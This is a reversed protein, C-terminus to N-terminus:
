RWAGVGGGFSDSEDDVDGSDSDFVGSSGSGAFDLFSGSVPQPSVSKGQSAHRTLLSAAFSLARAAAASVSAADPPDAAAHADTELPSPADVWAMEVSRMAADLAAWDARTRARNQKAADLFVNWRKQHVQRLLEGSLQKSAYDALLGNNSEHWLTLVMKDDRSLGTPTRFAPHTGLLDDVRDFLDRMDKEVELWSSAAQAAATASTERRARAVNEGVVVAAADSLTQRAFDVVDYLLASTPPPASARGSARTDLAGLLGQACSIFLRPDHRVDTPMFGVRRLDVGIPRLEWLSKYVGGGATEYPRSYVTNSACTWANQAAALRPDNADSFRYRARVWAPLWHEVMVVAAAVSSSSSPPVWSVGLAADYVVENQEVGEPAIGVGQLGAKAASQVALVSKHLEGGLGNNGGFNHLVCLATDPRRDRPLKPFQPRLEGHLDLLLSKGPPFGDLFERARRTTWYFRDNAMFWLQTVVVAEAGADGFRELVADRMPDYLAAAFAGLRADDKQTPGNENFVDVSFHIRLPTSAPRSAGRPVVTADRRAAALAAQTKLEERFEDLFALVVAKGLLSHTKSLPEVRGVETVATPMGSWGMPKRGKVRDVAVDDPVFGSFGPFVPSIGLELMRRVIAHALRMQGQHFEPSERSGLGKVNGMRCWAAYAVSCEFAALAVPSSGVASAFARRFVSEQGVHALAVNVGRLALWDLEQEWRAWKWLKFSYAFTVVNFAYRNSFPVLRVVRQLPTERQILTDVCPFAPRSPDAWSVLEVGCENAYFDRLGRAVATPSTGEVFLGVANALDADPDVRASVAYSYAEKANAGPAIVRVDALRVHIWKADDLPARRKVLERIGALALPEVSARSATLPREDDGRATTTTTTTTTTATDQTAALSRRRAGLLLLLLLLLVVVAM